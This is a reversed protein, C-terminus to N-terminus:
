LFLLVLLFGALLLFSERLPVEASIPYSSIQGFNANDFPNDDSVVVYMTYKGGTLGNWAMNGSNSDDTKYSLVRFFVPPLGNPGSGMKIESIFPARPWISNDGIIVYVLGNQQLHLNYIYVFNPGTGLSFTGQLANAGVFSPANVGASVITPIGTVNSNLM